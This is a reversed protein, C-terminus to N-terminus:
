KSLKVSEYDKTDKDKTDDNHYEEENSMREDDTLNNSKKDNDVSDTHDPSQEEHVKKTKLIM